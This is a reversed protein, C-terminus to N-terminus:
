LQQGGWVGDHFFLRLDDVYQSYSGLGDRALGLTRGLAMQVLDPVVGTVIANTYRECEESSLGRYRMPRGAHTLANRAANIYRVRTVADDKTLDAAGLSEVLRFLRDMTSPIGNDVKAQLLNAFALKQNEDLYEASQVVRAIDERLQKRTEKSPRASAPFDESSLILDLSLNYQAAKLPLWPSEFGLNYAILALALKRDVLDKRHGWAIKAASLTEHPDCAYHGKTAPDFRDKYRHASVRYGTLFTLLECLDWMGGDAAPSQLMISRERVPDALPLAVATITWRGRRGPARTRTETIGGDKAEFNVQVQPHRHLLGIASEYDDTLHVEFDGLQASDFPPAPRNDGIYLNYVPVARSWSHKADFWDGWEDGLPRGRDLWRLYASRRVHSEIEV